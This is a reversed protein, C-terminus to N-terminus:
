SINPSALSTKEKSVFIVLSKQINSVDPSALYERSVQDFGRLPISRVMVTTDLGIETLFGACELSVDSSADTLFIYFIIEYLHLIFLYYGLPSKM